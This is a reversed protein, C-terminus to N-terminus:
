FTSCDFGVQLVMGHIEAELGAELQANSSRFLTLNPVFHQISLIDFDVMLCKINSWRQEELKMQLAKIQEELKEQCEQLNYIFLPFIRPVTLRCFVQNSKKKQAFQMKREALAEERTCSTVHSM